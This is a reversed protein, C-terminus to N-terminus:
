ARGRGRACCRPPARPPAHAGSWRSPQTRSVRGQCTCGHPGSLGDIVEAEELVKRWRALREGGGRGGLDRLQEGGDRADDPQYPAVRAEVVGVLSERRQQALDRVLDNCAASCRDIKGFEESAAVDFRGHRRQLLRDLSPLRPVADIARGHRGDGGCCGPVAAAASPVCEVLRRHKCLAVGKHLPAAAGSVRQSGGSM